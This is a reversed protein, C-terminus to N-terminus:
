IYGDLAQRQAKEKTKLLVGGLKQVLWLLMELKCPHGRGEM